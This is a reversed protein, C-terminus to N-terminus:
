SFGASVTVCFCHLKQEFMVGVGVFGGVGSKQWQVDGALVSVALLLETQDLSSITQATHPICCSHRVGGICLLQVCVGSVVHDSCDM